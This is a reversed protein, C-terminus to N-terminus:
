QSSGKKVPKRNAVGAIEALANAADSAFSKPAPEPQQEAARDCLASIERLAADMRDKNQVALADDALQKIQEYM